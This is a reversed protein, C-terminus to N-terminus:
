ASGSREKMRNALLQSITQWSYMRPSMTPTKQTLDEALCGSVRSRTCCLSTRMSSWSDWSPSSNAWSLSRSTLRYASTEKFSLQTLSKWRKSLSNITMTWRWLLLTSMRMMIWTSSATTSFSVRTASKAMLTMSKIVEQSTKLPRLSSVQAIM